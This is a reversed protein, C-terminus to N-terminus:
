NRWYLFSVLLLPSCLALGTLAGQFFSWDFFSMM